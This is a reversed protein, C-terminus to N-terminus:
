DNPHQIWQQMWRLEEAIGDVLSGPRHAAPLVTWAYTEIEFHRPRRSSPLRSLAAWCASIEPQTGALVGLRAAYIPVHFHVRLDAQPWTALSKRASGLDDWFAASDAAAARASTQHLYRPEDFQALATLVSAREQEDGAGWGGAVASSIQVKGIEIDASELLAVASAQTEFMVAAHCIDYCVRIHRQNLARQPGAFLHECFFSVTQAITSLRCGPEPEICLYLLRGREAELRALVRAVEQLNRSCANLFEPDKDDGWGLPVTSISGEAGAPLLDDLLEAVALTYDLRASQSWDPQYVARKVVAQHFNHQPFANVTFLVLRESELRQRLEDRRSQPKLERVLDEAFWLGVGLPQDGGAARRIPGSYQRLNELLASLDPTPHVNTCYALPYRAPIM